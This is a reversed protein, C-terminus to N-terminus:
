FVIRLGFQIVRSSLSMETFDAFGTGEIGAFDVFRNPLSDGGAVGYGPNPHNLANFMEMRFQIRIQETVRTNKFVGLNVQNLRPGKESNRAANGFPNNFLLAAGPMNVVYRVDNPSIERITGNNLDNLSYFGRANRVPAGFFFSADIQSIGVQTRDADPNTVFPRAVEGVFPAYGNDFYGGGIARNLFNQSPTFPRGSTLVYTSNIQWGGLARGLVGQQDKYIPIDWIANLSFAHPRHFGSVSREASTVNFPHQSSPNEGFAFIESSNDITKSYSYSAGLTLQNYLRGNYRTQLGHYNSSATNERTRVLGQGALVRGNCAAENDPTAPNNVCNQPVLGAPLLNRFAPFAVGGLTFGNYLNSFLPNGNNTQFLGVAHNGVYRVEAVNNSNIQRQLGLSWQQSYPNYFNQSVVTRSLLRPDFTNVALIGASQAFARVKDGTPNASPVPFVPATASNSTLNLFVSPAATSINLMINYFPPDYAISYGGRIVTADEGFVSKWFRPTYAFGLRPAWNNKDAPLRPVTRAEVPLNQRWLATQPNAEREVTLENLTNIPQGIYEYRVGLNLTLNDRIKWDDQFFYFQDTEKYAITDEGAALQVTQPANAVLRAVSGITFSGNVNPLFPVENRLRRIDAGFIFSHRGRTTSFNDGFQFAEVTRGQPLNTAPGITQVTAGTVAGRVGAFSINTFALGIEAPDNICGKLGECGGGFKVFLRSYAFRFENVANSSVQRSWNAGLNQSRFPVDGTFGNTGALGNKSNGDQFLYRTWIDNKEGLKVDGRGSFEEQDYPFSITREPFAAAYSVGNIVVNDFPNSLDTRPRIQGLDTINFASFDAMVAIANNGPFRAKLAAASSPLLAINGSRVIASQRQKIGQYSGFFFARDKLIPGGLTGGYVNSIFPDPDEQTGSRRQLNNLANLAKDNRHFLFASGHFDNTGSKTVINIIAGQNRGFQASFNNTIVQFDQVIDQNDVFYNPGGISLDNNDQGDITFNNSRARQGNVSLTIGNGNVNGFGPVVGPALLALTDIGSGAANSPLEEVKRAEFNASIQSTEKQITEETGATVTVTETVGGPQLSVDIIADQGLKVTIDTYVGRKFNQAEVTLTYTGPILNPINYLGEGTSKFAPTEVGTAQNKAVLSAGPVVAGTQDTVSGKISGTTAQALVPQSFLPMLSMAFLALTLMSALAKAKRLKRM